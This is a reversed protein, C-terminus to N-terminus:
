ISKNLIRKFDWLDIKMNEDKQGIEELFELIIKRPM